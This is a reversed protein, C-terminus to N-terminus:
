KTAENCYNGDPWTPSLLSIVQRINVMRGGHQDYETMRNTVRAVIAEAREARATAIALQDPEANMASLITAVVHGVMTWGDNRGGNSRELAAAHWYEAVARPPGDPVLEIKM